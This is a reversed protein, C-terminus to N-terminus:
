EIFFLDYLAKTWNWYYTLELGELNEDFLVLNSRSYLPVSPLVKNWRLQYAQWYALYQEQEDYDLSQLLEALEDITLEGTQLPAALTTQNDILNQPNQNTGAYISHWRYYPIVYTVSQFVGHYIQEGDELQYNFTLYKNTLQYSGPTYEFDIGIQPMYTELSSAFDFQLLNNSEGLFSISLKEGNQNHRLYSTSAMSSDFHTVGDAEYKWETLDLIRNAESVSFDYTNLNDKLYSESDKYLWSEYYYDNDVITLLNEHMEDFFSQPKMIHAIAQRVRYDSAPGFDTIFSLAFYSNQGLTTYDVKNSNQADVLYSYNNQHFIIDFQQTEIMEFTNPNILQYNEDTEYKKITVYELIPVSGEFNGKFCENKIFEIAQTSYSKLKYPGSTVDATYRYGGAGLHINLESFAGLSVKSGENNSDISTGDKALRHMPFPFFEFLSEIGVKSRYMFIEHNVTISFQYDDILKVGSFRVDESSENIRFNDYGLYASSKQNFGGLSLWEKSSTMLISWVYDNATLPEGDSWKLDDFLEFTFVINGNTDTTKEVNKVVSQNLVLADYRDREYISYGFLLSTTTSTVTSSQNGIQPVIEGGILLTGVILSPESWRAYLTMNKNELENEDFPKTFNSDLFWGVFAKNERTPKQLDFSSAYAYNTPNDPHNEGGNLVYNITFTNIEWGAYLTTDATFQHNSDIVTSLNDKELMWGLFEHGEMQPQPLNISSGSEVNQSQILNGGMSDFTISVMTVPDPKESPDTKQDPTKCGSLILICGICLILYLWYSRRMFLGEKM